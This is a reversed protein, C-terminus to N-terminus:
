TSSFWVIDILQTKTIWRPTSPHMDCVVWNSSSNAGANCNAEPARSRRISRNDGRHFVLNCTRRRALFVPAPVEELHQFFQIECIPCVDIGIIWDLPYLSNPALLFGPVTQFSLAPNIATPTTSLV